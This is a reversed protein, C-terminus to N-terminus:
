EIWVRHINAFDCNDYLHFKVVKRSAVKYTAWLFKSDITLYDVICRGHWIQLSDGIKINDSTEVLEKINM